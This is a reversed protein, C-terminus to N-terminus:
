VTPRRRHRSRFLVAGILGVAVPLLAAPEPVSVRLVNANGGLTHQSGNFSMLFLAQFGAANALDFLDSPAAPGSFHFAMTSPAFAYGGAHLTAGQVNLPSLGFVGGRATFLDSAFTYVANGLSVSGNVAGPFLGYDLSADQDAVSLDFSLSFRLPGTAYQGPTSTVAGIARMADDFSWALPDQDRPLSLYEFDTFGFDGAFVLTVPAAAAPSAFLLGFCLATVARSSLRRM